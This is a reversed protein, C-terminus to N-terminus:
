NRAPELVSTFIKYEQLEASSATSETNILVINKAQPAYWVTWTGCDDEYVGIMGSVTCQCKCQFAEFHGATVTVTEFAAAVCEIEVATRRGNAPGGRM